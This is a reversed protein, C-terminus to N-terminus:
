GPGYRGDRFRVAAGSAELVGLRRCVTVVDLGLARALDDPRQPNTRVAALLPDDGDSARPSWPPCPLAPPGLLGEVALRLEDADTIPTAGQRILRNAGSCEPAYISGPVALVDRGAELAYDATSFTGSGLAAELVLLAASLGAIIRNRTRFTWRQPQTGWPHESVVAGTRAIERLLAGANRPYGVDAGGAMVAITRGGASLAARHAAQDCGIAGGSVVVYGAGGAWGAFYEAAALGYPTSKRAGVVGLGPLLRDPEGIGYLRQPPDPSDALLSPYAPDSLGVEFTAMGGYWSM